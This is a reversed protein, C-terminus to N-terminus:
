WVVRYVIECMCKQKKFLVCKKRVSEKEAIQWGCGSLYDAGSVYAWFAFNAIIIVSEVDM